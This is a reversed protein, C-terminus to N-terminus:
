IVQFFIYTLAIDSSYQLFLVLPSSICSHMGTPHTGDAATAMEGAVCAEGRGFMVGAVCARRAVYAGKGHMGGAMCAGRGHGQWAHGRHVSHGMCGQVGGEM